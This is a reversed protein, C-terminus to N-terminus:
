RQKKEADGVDERVEEEEECLGLRLDAQALVFESFEYLNRRFHVSSTHVEVVLLHQLLLPLPQKEKRGPLIERKEQGFITDGDLM